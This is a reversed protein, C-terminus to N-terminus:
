GQSYLFCSSSRLRLITDRIEDTLTKELSPQWDPGNLLKVFATLNAPTVRNLRYILIESLYAFLEILTIGPDSPNFNTWESTFMPILGMSEQVLDDYTRDDLNPLKLPM